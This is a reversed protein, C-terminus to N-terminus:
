WKYLQESVPQKLGDLLHTALTATKVLFAQNEPKSPTPIMEKYDNRVPNLIGHNKKLHRRMDKVKTSSKIYGTCKLCILYAFPLHTLAFHDNM